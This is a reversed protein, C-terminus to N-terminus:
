SDEDLVGLLVFWLWLLSPVFYSLNFILNVTLTLFMVQYVINRERNEKLVRRIQEIFWYVFILGFWGMSVMMELPWSFVVESFDSFYNLHYQSDASIKGFNALGIGLPHKWLSVMAQVYYVRSGLTTKVRGTLIFLVLGLGIIALGLKKYKAEVKLRSVLFIVGVMLGLYASRSQSVILMWGGVALLGWWYINKSKFLKYIVGVMIVSWLDGINNHNFFHSTPLYLSWANITPERILNFFVFLGSFVVGFAILLKDLYEKILKPYSSAVVWFLGGAVFLLWYSFSEQQNGGIFVGVELIVLFVLYWLWNTPPKLQKKKIVVALLSLGLIVGGLHTWFLFKGLGTWAFISFLAFLVIM